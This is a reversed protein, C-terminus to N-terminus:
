IKGNSLVNPKGRGVCLWYSKHEVTYTARIRGGHCPEEALVRVEDGVSGHGLLRKGQRSRQEDKLVKGCMTVPLVAPVLLMRSPFALVEHPRKRLELNALANADACCSSIHALTAPKFCPLQFLWFM